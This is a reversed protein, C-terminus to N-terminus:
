VNVLPVAIVTGCKLKDFIKRKISQRVIEVGNIEDGHVGGMILAVPGPKKSRYVFARITLTIDSPLNGVSIDIEAKEGPLIEKNYIKM